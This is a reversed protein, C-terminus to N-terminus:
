GEGSINSDGDDLCQKAKLLAWAANEVYIPQQRIWINSYRQLTANFFRAVEMLHSVFFGEFEGYFPPFRVIVARLSDKGNKALSAQLKNNSYRKVVQEADRKSRGSSGFLFWSVDPLTQETAYYITDYSAYAEFSSVHVFRAVGLTVAAQLLTETGGVNITELEVVDRDAEESWLDISAACHIICDSGAVTREVVRIDRVDGKIWKILKSRKGEGKANQIEEEILAEMLAEPQKLDLCRVEQVREDLRILLKLVHFGLCGAAGTLVM